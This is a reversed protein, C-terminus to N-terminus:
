LGAAIMRARHRVEEFRIAKEAWRVLEEWHGPALCFIGMNRECRAALVDASFRLGDQRLIQRMHKIAEIMM